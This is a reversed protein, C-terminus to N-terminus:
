KQNQICCTKSIHQEQPRAWDARSSQLCISLTQWSNETLSHHGKWTLFSRSAGVTGLRVNGRKGLAGL